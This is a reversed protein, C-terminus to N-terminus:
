HQAPEDAWVLVRFGRVWFEGGGFGVCAHDEGVAAKGPHWGGECPAQAVLMAGGHAERGGEIPVVGAELQSKIQAAEVWHVHSADGVLVEFASLEHEISDYSLSAGGAQLHQGAKGLHVGGGHWARASYLAAGSAETGTQLADDPIRPFSGTQFALREIVALPTNESGSQPEVLVWRMAPRVAGPEYYQRTRARAAQLWMERGADDDSQLEAYIKRKVEEGPEGHRYAWLGFGAVCSMAGQEGKMEARLTAENTESARAAYVLARYAPHAPAEIFRSLPFPMPLVYNPSPQDSRPQAPPQTPLPLKADPDPPRIPHQPKPAHLFPAHPAHANYLPRYGAPLHYQAPHHGAPLYTYFGYGPVHPPPPISSISNITTTSAGSDPHVYMPPNEAHPEDPTAPTLHASESELPAWLQSAETPDRGPGSTHSASSRYLLNNFRVVAGRNFQTDPIWKRVM